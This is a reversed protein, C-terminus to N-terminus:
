LFIVYAILIIVIQFLNIVAVVETEYVKKSPKIKKLFYISLHTLGYIKEHLLDLSGDKNPKGFSPMELKGRLKLATEIFYPIFIFLAIKEFNGLIAMIAILAGLGLTLSDGPFVKSPYKNFILFALLASVMIIGVVSIWANGTTYAVYSLFSLIIIGQTTELGNFGALFNFANAAGVIGVPVLFLPYLLGFNVPGLFPVNMTSVGANIVILPISAFFALLVRWKKAMGKTTWGWLDDIIGILGLILLTTVLAFTGIVEGDYEKVIFTRFGIYVLVGLVFALVVVIGGSAAVNKPHGFKNMDNWLLNRAKAKQIWMPM